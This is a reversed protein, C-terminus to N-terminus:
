KEGVARGLAELLEALHETGIEGMHGIRLRRESGSGEGSAVLWGERMLAEAVAQGTLTGGLELCSVTPSRRGEPALLRVDQRGTVWREVMEAMARHRDWRRTLGEQAIRELQRDLTLAMRPDVATLVADEAAAAHHTLLDLLVGRGPRNRTRAVLRSSAAAFALGAPLALPGSSAALVLDLGWADTELEAAGLTTTADVFLLLDRRARVVRALEALPALTGTGAEAHVLAVTDVLPSALFRELQEPEPTRGPHVMMRIVEAGLAEATDALAASDPGAVLVLVRQDITARLGIERLIGAPAAVAIVPEATRFLRRLRPQALALLQEAAEPAIASEGSGALLAPHVEGADPLFRRGFGTM